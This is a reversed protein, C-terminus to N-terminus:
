LDHSVSFTRSGLRSLKAAASAVYLNEFDRNLQRLNLYMSDRSALRYIRSM